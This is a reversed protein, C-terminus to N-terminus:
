VSREFLKRIKKEGQSAFLRIELQKEKALSPEADFTLDRQEEIIAQSM